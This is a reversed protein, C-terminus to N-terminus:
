KDTNTPHYRTNRGNGTKKILGKELLSNLVRVTTAPPLGIIEQVYSRTVGGSEESLLVLYLAAREKMNLSKNQVILGSSFSLEFYTIHDSMKLSLTKGIRECFNILKPIDLNQSTYFSIIPYTDRIRCASTWEYGALIDNITYPPTPTGPIMIKLTDNSIRVSIPGQLSYDKLNAVHEILATLLQHSTFGGGLYDCLETSLHTIVQEMQQFLPGILYQHRCIAKHRCDDLVFQVDCQDSFLFALNNYQTIGLNFSKCHLKKEIVTWPINKKKCREEFARFTLEQQSCPRDM